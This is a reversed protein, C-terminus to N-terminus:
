VFSRATAKYFFRGVNPQHSLTPDSHGRVEGRDKIWFYRIDIHRSRPGASSRGNVALKIASENDQELINEDFDFGQAKMFM